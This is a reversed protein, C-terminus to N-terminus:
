VLYMIIFIKTQLLHNVAFLLEEVLLRDQFLLKFPRWYISTRAFSHLWISMWTILWEVCEFLKEFIRINVELCYFSFFILKRNSAFIIGFFKISYGAIIIFSLSFWGCNWKGYKFNLSWITSIAPLFSNTNLQKPIVTSCTFLIWCTWVLLPAPICVKLSM